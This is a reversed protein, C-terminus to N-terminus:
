RYGETEHKVSIRSDNFDFDKMQLTQVQIHPSEVKTLAHVKIGLKHCRKFFAHDEGYHAFREFPEEKLEGKIRDFVEKKVLLCGGGASGVELVDVDQDWNGIPMAYLGEDDWQYIVPCGPEARHRYLATVVQLDFKSMFFLMRALTDPEFQHDMDTMWLWDGKMQRVISNRAFDHLSVTAKVQHIIEANNPNCVYETNYQILQGWSWTFAELNAPLGGMYAITGIINKKLIM